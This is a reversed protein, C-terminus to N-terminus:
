ISQFTQALERFPRDSHRLGRHHLRHHLGAGSGAGLDTLHGYRLEPGVINQNLHLGGGDTPGVQVDVLPVVPRLVADLRRQHRPMLKASVHRLHAPVDSRHLFAVEDGCLHMHRAALAELAPDAFRMDTLVHGDKPHISWARERFVHAYRLRVDPLDVRGNRYIIRRQQIRQPIRHVGAKRSLDCSPRPRHDSATRDPQERDCHRPRAARRLDEGDLRWPAWLSRPAALWSPKPLSGAITTELV